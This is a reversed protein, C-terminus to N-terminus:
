KHTLATYGFVVVQQCSASNHTPTGTLDASKLCACFTNESMHMQSAEKPREMWIRCKQLSHKVEENCGHCIYSLPLSSTVIPDHNNPVFDSTGQALAKWLKTHVHNVQPIKNALFDQRLLPQASLNHIVEKKKWKSTSPNSCLAEYPSRPLHDVVQTIGGIRKAKTIQWIPDKVKQRLSAKSQSGEVEAERM